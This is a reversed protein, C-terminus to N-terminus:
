TSAFTEANPNFKTEFKPRKYEEVSFYQELYFDKDDGDIDDDDLRQLGCADTRQELEDNEEVQDLNVIDGNELFIPM